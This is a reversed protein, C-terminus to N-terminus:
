RVYEAVRNRGAQKAGIYLARDANRLLSMGEDSDEPATSVGISATIFIIEDRTIEGLDLPVIFPTQEIKRRLQEAVNLAQLKSYNPLLVVFEEGGYRGVTGNSGIEQKIINAFEQLIINGSHHGYTDNVGKFKDIDMMILSVTRYAGSNLKSIDSKLQNDLYRYNYIKTLECIESKEVAERVYRAKELSVAFYSCLLHIIKLQYPEFAFKDRAALILVGEIKQNRYIPVCMVSEMDDALFPPRMHNWETQKNYLIPEGKEYVKGALSYKIDEHGFELEKNQGDERARLVFFNDEINDVIYGANLPFMNSLRKLFMDLIENTTMRDALQHGFESAENLDANVKESDSYMRILLTISLLPLGLLWLATTGTTNEFLYLGLGFPLTIFLCAFEWYLDKSFFVPNMNCLYERMFLFLHNIILYSIAFISGYVIVDKLMISGTEYGLYIVLSGSLISLSFFMFSNYFYKFLTDRSIKLHYVLPIMCIQMSILEALIGYKLFIAIQVWIVLIFTTGAIFFPFISSLLALLLFAGYGEWDGPKTPSYLYVLLTGAPVFLLWLAFMIRQAKKSFNM